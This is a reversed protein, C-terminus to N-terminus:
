RDQDRRCAVYEDGVREGFDSFGWWPREPHEVRLGSFPNAHWDPFERGSWAVPFWGFCSAQDRWANSAAAKTSVSVPRFFPGAIKSAQLRRVPHLGTRVGFRYLLVSAINVIGLAFATRAKVALRTVLTM